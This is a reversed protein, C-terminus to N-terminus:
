FQTCCECSMRSSPILRTLNRERLSCITDPITGSMLTYDFVLEELRSLNEFERPVTGTLKVNNTVYIRKMNRCNGLHSPISGAFKNGEIKLEELDDLSGLETPITGTLSDFYLSLTQLSKCNGIESPITGKMTNYGLGFYTMNRLNGITSPITGTIRNYGLGLNTLHQLNGITSPISGVLKNKTFRIYQLNSWLGIESPIMGNLKNHALDLLRLESCSGISTPISGMLQNSSLVLERLMKLQGIEKPIYGDIINNKLNLRVLSELSGIETPITGTLSNAELDLSVLQSLLATEAPISGLLHNEKLNIHAVFGQDDCAIGFWACVSKGTMWETANNLEYLEGKTWSFFCTALAYRDLLSDNHEKASNLSEEVLWRLALNPAECSTMNDDFSNYTNNTFLEEKLIRYEKMEKDSMDELSGDSLCKESFVFLTEVINQENTENDENPQMENVSILGSFGVGLGIAVIIMVVCIVIWKTRKSQKKSDTPTPLEQSVEATMVLETSSSPELELEPLRDEHENRSRMEPPLHSQDNATRTSEQSTDLTSHSLRQSNRVWAPIAGGAHSEMRYAGPKEETAEEHHKIINTSQRLPRVTSAASDDAAIAPLGAEEDTAVTTTAGANEEPEHDDLKPSPVDHIKVQKGKAHWEKYFEDEKMFDNGQHNKSIGQWEQNSDHMSLSSTAPSTTFNVADTPYISFQKSGKEIKTLSLIIERKLALLREDLASAAPTKEERTEKKEKVWKSEREHKLLANIIAQKEALLRESYNPEAEEEMLMMSMNGGEECDIKEEGGEDPRSSASFGDDRGPITAEMTYEFHTKAQSVLEPVESDM